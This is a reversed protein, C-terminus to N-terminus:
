RRQEVSGARLSIIGRRFDSCVRKPSRTCILTSGVQFSGTEGAARNLIAGSFQAWPGSCLFFPTACFYPQAATVRFCPLARQLCSAPQGATVDEDFRFFFFGEQAAAQNAFWSCAHSDNM